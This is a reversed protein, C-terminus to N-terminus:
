EGTPTIALLPLHHCTCTGWFLGAKDVINGAGFRRESSSRLRWRAPAPEDAAQVDGARGHYSHRGTAVGGLLGRNMTFYCM